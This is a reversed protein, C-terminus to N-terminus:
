QENADIELPRLDPVVKALMLKGTTYRTMSEADNLTGPLPQSTPM